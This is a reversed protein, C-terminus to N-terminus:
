KSIGVYSDITRPERRNLINLLQRLTCFTVSRPLEALGAAGMQSRQTRRDVVFCVKQKRM